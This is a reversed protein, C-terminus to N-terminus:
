FIYFFALFHIVATVWKTSSNDCWTDSWAAHVTHVNVNVNVISMPGWEDNPLHLTGVGSVVMVSM